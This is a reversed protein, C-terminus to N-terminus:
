FGHRDAPNRALLLRPLSLRGFPLDDFLMISIIAKVNELLVTSPPCPECAVPLASLCRVFYSGFQLHGQQGSMTRCSLGCNPLASHRAASALQTLM